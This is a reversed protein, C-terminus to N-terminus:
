MYIDKLGIGVLRLTDAFLVKFFLFIIENQLPSKSMIIGNVGFLRCNFFFFQFATRKISKM